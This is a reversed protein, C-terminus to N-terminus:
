EVAPDIPTDQVVEKKKRTTRKKPASSPKVPKSVAKKTEEMIDAKDEGEREEKEEEDHAQEDEVFENLIDELNVRRNGDLHITPIMGTTKIEEILEAQAVLYQDPFKNFLENKRSKLDNISNVLFAHTKPDMRVGDLDSEKSNYAPQNMMIHMYKFYPVLSM